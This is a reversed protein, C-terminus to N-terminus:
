FYVTNKCILFLEKSQIFFYEPLITCVIFVFSIGKSFDVTYPASCVAVLRPEILVSNENLYLFHRDEEQM